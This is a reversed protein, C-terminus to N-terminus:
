IQYKKWVDIVSQVTITGKGKDFFNWVVDWNQPNPTNCNKAM